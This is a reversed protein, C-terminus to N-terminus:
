NPRGGQIRVKGLWKGSRQSVPALGALSAAQKNNLAGTEPMDVFIMLATIVGIGPIRFLIDLRASMCQDQHALNLMAKM